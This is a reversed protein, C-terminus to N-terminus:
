REIPHGAYQWMSYGVRFYYVKEFGWAVAKKCAVTTEAGMEGLGYIVIEQNKSVIESLTSERFEGVLHLHIAGPIHGNNYGPVFEDGDAQRVDVFPVGRDFLQKATTVDVTTAGAVTTASQALVVTSVLAAVLSVISFLKAM